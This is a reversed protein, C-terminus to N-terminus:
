MFGLLEWLGPIRSPNSLTANHMLLPVFVENSTAGGHQGRDKNLFSIGPKPIILVDPHSNARFYRSLNSIFFPYYLDNIPSKIEDPCIIERRSNQGSSLDSNLFSIQFKDHRCKDGDEYIFSTDFKSSHVCVENGSLSAVIDLNPQSAVFKVFESKRVESWVGRFRIAAFREENLFDFEGAFKELVEAFNIFKTIRKDFGHDSSLLSVVERTHAHEVSNLIEFVTSLKRDLFKLYESVEQAQPGLDHSKLDLGILHLYIFDPWSEPKSNKLVSELSNILRTDVLEYNKKLVALAAETDGSFMRATSNSSFSYDLSVTKLGKEKLRKFINKGKILNNLHVFNKPDEFNLYEDDDIIQNGYIGHQDVTSETLLSAIAPYTESPFLTRAVFFKEKGKIFFDNLQPLHGQNFEQSLMKLQLGDILIFLVTRHSTKAGNTAERYEDSAHQETSCASLLFFSILIFAIRLHM